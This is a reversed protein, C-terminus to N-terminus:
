PFEFAGRSLLQLLHVGRRSPKPTSATRPKADAMDVHEMLLRIAKPMLVRELIQLAHLPQKGNVFRGTWVLEHGRGHVPVRGAFLDPDSYPVHFAAIGQSEFFAKDLQSLVLVGRTLRRITEFLPAIRGRWIKTSFYLATFCSHWQVLAPIGLEAIVRLDEAMSVGFYEHHIVLDCKTRTLAERLLALREPTAPETSDGGGIVITEHPVAISYDQETPPLRTLVVLRHGMEHHVKLIAGAGRQMGGGGLQKYIHGITM